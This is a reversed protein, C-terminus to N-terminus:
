LNILAYCKALENLRRLCGLRNKDNLAQGTSMKLINDENYFEDGDFFPINLQKSLLHGITNKGVGSVGIIFIINAEILYTDQAGVNPM